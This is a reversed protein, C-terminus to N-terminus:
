FPERLAKLHGHLTRKTGAPESRPSIDKLAECPKGAKGPWSCLCGGALDAPLEFDGKFFWTRSQKPGKRPDGGSGSGSFPESHRGPLRKRAHKPNKRPGEWGPGSSPESHSGALRKEYTNHARGPTVGLWARFITRSM